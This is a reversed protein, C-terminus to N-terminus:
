FRQRRDAENLPLVFPFPRQEASARGMQLPMHVWSPLTISLRTALFGARIECVYREEKATGIGEAIKRAGQLRQRCGPHHNREASLSGKGQIQRGEEGHRQGGEIQGLDGRLPSAPPSAPSFAGRRTRGM